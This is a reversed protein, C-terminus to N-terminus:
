FWWRVGAVLKVASVDHGASRAFDATEGTKWSWMVGAYPAIERRLEYRVRFGLDANTLGAGVGREPDSKGSLNIEVLPQLVARNTLLLDYEIEFRAATRGGAGIYATAEVEFWYPALGQIGIAAWTQAPGPRFDQRIGGVVDWWRAFAHGYLLHVDADELRGGEARGESRLWVRGRDRGIWSTSDWGADGEAQWEVRDFMVVYNIASDHVAHGRVDPFAAKRDADTLPPVNGPLPQQQEHEGATTAPESQPETTGHTHGAPAAPAASQASAAPAALLGTAIAMAGMLASVGRHRM